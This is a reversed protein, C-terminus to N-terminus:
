WGFAFAGDALNWSALAHVQDVMEAPGPLVIKRPGIKTQILADPVGFNTM